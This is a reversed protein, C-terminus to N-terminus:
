NNRLFKFAPEEWDAYTPISNFIIKKEMNHDYGQFNMILYDKGSSKFQRLNDMSKKIPGLGDLEPDGFVFVSPINLTELIPLPNFDIIKAHHQRWPHSYGLPEESLWVRKFWARDKYKDWLEKLAPYTTSDSSFNQDAIQAQMAEALDQDSFGESQLRANREFIRDERLPVISGSVIIMGALPIESMSAALPVVWGGQSVGFLTIQSADLDSRKAVTEIASVMDSALTDFNFYRPFDEDGESNGVGRKDYTFSAYGYKNAKRAYWRLDEKPTAGSGHAFVMVPPKDIGVPKALEGSLLVSGSQFTISETTVDDFQALETFYIYTSFGAGVVIIAFLSILVKKLM